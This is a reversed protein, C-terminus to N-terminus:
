GPERLCEHIDGLGLGDDGRFLMAVARLEAARQPIFIEHEISRVAAHNGVNVFGQRTRSFRHPAVFELLRDLIGRQRLVGGRALRDPAADDEAGIRKHARRGDLPGLGAGGLAGALGIMMVIMVVIIVMMMSRYAAVEPCAPRKATRVGRRGVRVDAGGRGGM